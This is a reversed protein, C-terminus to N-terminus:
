GVLEEATTGLCKAIQVATVANPTQIGNEYKAITPQAIGVLKALEMQTLGKEERKDKLNKAFSM